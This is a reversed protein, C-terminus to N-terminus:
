VVKDTCKFKRFNQGGTSGENTCRFKGFYRGQVEQAVAGSSSQTAYQPLTKRFQRTLVGSSGRAVVQVERTFVGSSKPYEGQLCM